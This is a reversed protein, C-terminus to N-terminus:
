GRLAEKLQGFMYYYSPFLDLSNSSTHTTVIESAQINCRSGCFAFACKQPAFSGAQVAFKQVQQLDDAESTKVGEPWLLVPLTCIFM